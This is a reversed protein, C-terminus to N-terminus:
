VIRKGAQRGERRYGNQWQRDADPKISREGGVSKKKRKKKM